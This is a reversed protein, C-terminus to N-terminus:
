IPNGSITLSGDTNAADVSTVTGGGTGMEDWETGTYVRFRNTTTNFYVQGPKPNSPNSALNQVIANQLENKNLNIDVLFSKAM